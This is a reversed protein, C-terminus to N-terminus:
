AAFTDVSAFTHRLYHPTAEATINSLDRYKYFINEIGYISLTNGYKNIFLSDCQPSLQSRLRIWDNLEQVVEPSSIFLIRERQGKGRVLLTNTSRQYDQLRLRSIEGIRMGTCILLDIIALNRSAIMSHYENQDSIDKKITHILASIDPKQLVKPLLREKTVKCSFRHFPNVSIIHSFELNSFFKHLTIFRRKITSPKLRKVQLLEQLYLNLLQYFDNIEDTSDFTLLFKQFQQLDCLYSKISYSSLDTANQIESQYSALHTTLEQYNMHLEEQM